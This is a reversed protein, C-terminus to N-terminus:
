AQVNSHAAVVCALALSYLKSTASDARSPVVIPAQAGTVMGAMSAGAFLSITKYFTNSAELTPFILVDANGVVPSVIGKVEGSHRDCATKVDMPGSLDVDGFAGSDAEQKLQSYVITHPFKENTKESFHILAIRPRQIGFTHCIAIDYRIMAEFQQLTPRPIVAADSFMLLKHYSPISSLTVHSLVNGEPLIGHDKNLVAHLLNDTNINGKMLVQARSTSILQVGRTAADDLSAASIAETLHPYVNCLRSIRKSFGPPTVLYFYAANAKLCTEVAEITADDDPCIVAVRPTTNLSYFRSVLSDFSNITTM